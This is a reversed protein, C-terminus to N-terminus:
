GAQRTPSLFLFPPVGPPPLPPPSPNYQAAGPPCAHMPPKLTPTSPPVVTGPGALLAAADIGSPVCLSVPPPVHPGVHPGHPAAHVGLPLAAQEARGVAAAKGQMKWGGRDKKEAVSSGKEGCFGGEEWLVGRKTM